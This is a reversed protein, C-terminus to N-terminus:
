LYKENPSKYIFNIKLRNCLERAAAVAEYKDSFKGLGFQKGDKWKLISIWYEVWTGGQDGM